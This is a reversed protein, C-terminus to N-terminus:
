VMKKIRRGIDGNGPYLCSCSNASLICASATRDKESHRTGVQLCYVTGCVWAAYYVFAKQFLFVSNRRKKGHIPNGSSNFQIDHAGGAGAPFVHNVFVM